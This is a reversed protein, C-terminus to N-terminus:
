FFSEPVVLVDDPLLPDDLKLKKLVTDQGNVKRRIKIGRKSARVSFGGARTVAKIVTTGREFKYEGPRM